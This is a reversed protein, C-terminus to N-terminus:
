FYKTILKAQQKKKKNIRFSTYNVEDTIKRESGGNKEEGGSVIV